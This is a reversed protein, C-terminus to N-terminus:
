ARAAKIIWKLVELVALTQGCTLEARKLDDLRMRLIEGYNLPGESSVPRMERTAYDQYCVREARVLGEIGEWAVTKKSRKM